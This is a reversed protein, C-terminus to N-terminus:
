RHPTSDLEGREVSSSSRPGLDRWALGVVVVLAVVFIALLGIGPSLRVAVLFANDTWGYPVAPTPAEFIAGVGIAALQLGIVPLLVVRAVSGMRHASLAYAPAVAIVFELGLRYAYHAGGGTFPNLQAQLVMYPLAGLALWRSWDPLERWGRILAPFLVVLLPTWVLVGKDPSVWLGLLNLLPSAADPYLQGSALDEPSTNYGAGPIWTGYVWYTWVSTLALFSASPVGVRVLIDPRRRALAVGTGLVAVILAVHLRGCIAVGGFVGVLWWRERSAAWAMWALGFVTITHTWMANAAVSWVPTAVALVMVAALARTDGARRRLSLFLALVSGATLLAATIAEPGMSFDEPGSGGGAIWYAPVAAAVVGPLRHSVRHGNRAEAIFVTADPLSGYGNIQTTDVGDLWPEGTHAIRWAAISSSYVDVSVKSSTQATLGYILFVSFFLSGAVAM